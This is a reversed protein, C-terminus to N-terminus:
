STAVQSETCTVCIETLCIKHSDTLTAFTHYCLRHFTYNKHFGKHKKETYPVGLNYGRFLPHFNLFPLQLM